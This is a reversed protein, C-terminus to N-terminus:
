RANILPLTVKFFQGDNSIGIKRNTFHSFRSTINKLGTKSSVTSETRPQIKNEVILTDEKTCISIDLRKAQSAENHQIANEVLMQLCMPPLFGVRFKDEIQFNFAVSNEFRIKLLYSYHELFELEEDLTVLESDKNELVYRYVKSLENIFDVAKDQDKQVLSTLVSLNNFLFHPNIQSKLNQLQAEANLTKYKEVELLSRKWARFFIISIHITIIALSFVLTPFFLEVMRRNVLRGDGFRIQHLIFMLLFISISTFVSFFIGQFIFRKKPNSLWTIKTDLFDDIRLNGELIVLTAMSIFILDLGIVDSIRFFILKFLIAILISVLCKYLFSKQMHQTKCKQNTAVL